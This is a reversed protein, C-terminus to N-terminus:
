LPNQRVVKSEAHQRHGEFELNEPPIQTFQFCYIIMSTYHLFYSFGAEVIFFISLKGRFYSPRLVACCKSNLRQIKANRYQSTDRRNSTFSPIELALHQGGRNGAPGPEGTIVTHNFLLLKLFSKPCSLGM